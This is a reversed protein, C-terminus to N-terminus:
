MVEASTGDGADGGIPTPPANAHLPSMTDPIAMGRQPSGPPAGVGAGGPGGGAGGDGGGGFDDDGFDGMLDEDGLDNDDFGDRPMAQQDSGADDDDGGGGGGDNFYRGDDGGGGGSGEVAGQDSEMPDSGSGERERVAGALVLDEKTVPMFLRVEAPTVNKKSDGDEFKVDFLRGDSGLAVKDVWGLFWEGPEFECELYTEPTVESPFPARESLLKIRPNDVISQVDVDGDDYHIMWETNEANKPAALQGPFWQQDDEWFVIVHRAALPLEDDLAM